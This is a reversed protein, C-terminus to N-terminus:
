IFLGEKASLNTVTCIYYMYKVLAFAFELLSKIQICVRFFVCRVCSCYNLNRAVTLGLRIQFKILIIIGSTSM